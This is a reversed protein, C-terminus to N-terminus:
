QVSPWQKFSGIFKKHLLKRDGMRYILQRFLMLCCRLHRVQNNRSFANQDMCYEVLLIHQNYQRLLDRQLLKKKSCPIQQTGVVYKTIKTTSSHIKRLILHSTKRNAQHQKTLLSPLTAVYQMPDKLTTHAKQIALSKRYQKVLMVTYHLIQTSVSAMIPPYHSYRWLNQPSGVTICFYRLDDNPLIRDM